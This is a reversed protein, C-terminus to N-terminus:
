SVGVTAARKIPAPDPEIAPVGVIRDAERTVRNIETEIAVRSQESSEDSADRAVFIPDGIVFAGRSFPLPVIFKDWSSLVRRNSVSVAIPFVPLGTLRALAVVGANARMRPGRPGDPTIALGEGAAALKAMNLMAQVGGKSSKSGGKVKDGASGRVSKVGFHTIMDAIISGDRHNSILMNLPMTKTRWGYPMMALRGHWFAGIIPKDNDWYARPAAENVIRWSSTAHVFRIYSALLWCAIDHVFKSKFFQKLIKPSSSRKRATPSEPTMVNQEIM